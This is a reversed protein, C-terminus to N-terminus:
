WSMTYNINTTWVDGTLDNYGYSSNPNDPDQSYKRTYKDFFNVKHYLIELNVYAKKLELPFELGAGLGAGLGGGSERGLEPEDIFKNTQYWYEMQGTFYPNSFTIATGLDSTDVYYRLGWYTRLMNVTILGPEKDKYGDTETDIYMNHKSYSLGLVFATQFNFFYVLSLNYGPPENNYALGRNGTFSTLGLGFNFSYFRGYQYFREAEQVQAADVDENFDSFIDGGVIFDDELGQIDTVDMQAYTNFSLILIITAILRM